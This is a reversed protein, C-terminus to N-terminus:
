KEFAAAVDKLLARVDDKTAYSKCSRETFLAHSKEIAVLVHVIQLSFSEILKNMYNCLDWANSLHARKATEVRMQLDKEKQESSNRSFKQVLTELQHGSTNYAPLFYDCVPSVTETMFSDLAVDMSDYLSAYEKTHIELEQFLSQSM